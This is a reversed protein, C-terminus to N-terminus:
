QKERENGVTHVVWNSDDKKGAVISMPTSTIALVQIFQALRSGRLSSLCMPQITFVDTPRKIRIIQVTETILSPVIKLINFVSPIIARLQLSKYSGFPIVVSVILGIIINSIKFNSTILVWFTLRFVLTILLRFFNRM